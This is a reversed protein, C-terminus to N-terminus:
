FNTLLYKMAVTWKDWKFSKIRTPNVYESNITM